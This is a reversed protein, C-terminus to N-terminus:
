KRGVLFLHKSIILNAKESLMNVYKKQVEIRDLFILNIIHVIIDNQSGFNCSLCLIRLFYNM